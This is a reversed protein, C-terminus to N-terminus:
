CLQFEVTRKFKTGGKIRAKIKLKYYTAYFPHLYERLQSVPVTLRLKNSGRSERHWEHGEGQNDYGLFLSATVKKVNVAAAVVRLRFDGSVCGAPLGPLGIERSGTLVPPSSASIRLFSIDNSSDSDLYEGGSPQGSEDAAIFGVDHKMTEEMRVVATIQMSAGAALEGIPCFELSESAGVHGCSGQSPTVSVYPNETIVDGGGLGGMEVGVGAPVADSGDNRVTVTITATEGKKVVTASASQSIALDRSAEASAAGSGLWTAAVLVAAVSAHRIPRAWPKVRL